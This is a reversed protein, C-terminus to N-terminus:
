FIRPNPFANKCVLQGGNEPDVRTQLDTISGELVQAEKRRANRTKSSQTPDNSIIRASKAQINRVKIAGLRDAIVRQCSEREVDVLRLRGVYGSTLIVAIICFSVIVLVGVSLLKESRSM